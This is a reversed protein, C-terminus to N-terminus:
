RLSYYYHDDCCVQYDTLGHTAERMEELSMNAGKGQALESTGKYNKIFDNYRSSVERLVLGIHAHRYEVWLDNSENLVVQLVFVIFAWNKMLKTKRLQSNFFLSNRTM